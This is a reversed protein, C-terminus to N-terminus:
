GTAKLYEEEVIDANMKWTYKERVFDYAKKGM